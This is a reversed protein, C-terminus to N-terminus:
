EVTQEIRVPLGDHTIVVVRGFRYKERILRILEAEKPHLDDKNEPRKKESQKQNQTM